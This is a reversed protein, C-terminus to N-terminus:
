LLLMSVAWMIQSQNHSCFAQNYQRYKYYNAVHQHSFALFKGKGEVQKEWTVEVFTPILGWFRRVKLKLGKEVSTDFKLVMGLALGLNNFKFWSGSM